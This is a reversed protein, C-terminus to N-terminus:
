ATAPLRRSGAWPNGGLEIKFVPDAPNPAGVAPTLGTSAPVVGREAQEAEAYGLASTDAEEIHRLILTRLLVMSEWHDTVQPSERCSQHVLDLFLRIFRHDALHDKLGPYDADRLVLDEDIMMERLYAALFFLRRCVDERPETHFTNGLDLLMRQVVAQDRQLGAMSRLPPPQIFQPIGPAHNPM